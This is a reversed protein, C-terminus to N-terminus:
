EGWVTRCAEALIPLDLGASIATQHAFKLDHYARIIRGDSEMQTYLKAAALPATEPKRKTQAALRRGFETYQGSLGDAAIGASWALSAASFTEERGGLAVALKIAEASTEALYLGVRAAGKIRGTRMLYGGWLGYIKSMVQAVQVGAPDGTTVVIFPPRNFLHALQKMGDAPGALVGVSDRGYVLDEDRIPGALAYIRIDRRGAARAAESVIQYPLKGSHPDFGWGALVIKLGQESSEMIRRAQDALNKPPSALIIESAKRFASTQDTTLFVNKPLGVDNFRGVPRRYLATEDIVDTRNDYVTLSANLYKRKDLMRHGILHTLAFGWDGAGVVVINEKATPSYLRRDGHTAYFSLGAQAKIRPLGDLEKRWKLLVGRRKLTALGDEVVERMPNDLIFDELDPEQGFTNRHYEILREREAEAVSVLNSEGTRTATLLSRAVLQSAMVKKSKAIDKIATLAVYEDLALGGADAENRAKLESLLMPRPMTMYARGYIDEAARWLGTKPHLLSKFLPRVVGLGRLWSRASGREALPLDEPIISYSVAVPQIVVDRDSALAGKLTVLRRPYRLSGDRSRAGGRWAELFIGQQHGMESIARCHNFLSALQHRGAGARQVKYSGAMLLDALTPIAMMNHGAAFFPLGLRQQSIVVDAIFEDVHSSHNCLFVVGLGQARYENLLETHAMERRDRSLFLGQRDQHTFLHNVMAMLASATDLHVQHRYTNTIDSAIARLEAPDYTSGDAELQAATLEVTKDIMLNRDSLVAPIDACEAAWIRGTKTAAIKHVLGVFDIRGMGTAFARLGRRQWGQMSFWSQLGGSPRGASGRGM